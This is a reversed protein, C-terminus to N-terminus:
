EKCIVKKEEWNAERTVNVILAFADALLPFYLYSLDLYVTYTDYWVAQYSIMTYTTVITLFLFVPLTWNGKLSNWTREWLKGTERTSIFYTHYGKDCVQYYFMSVAVSILVLGRVVVETMDCWM